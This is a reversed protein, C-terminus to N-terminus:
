HPLLTPASSPATLSSKIAHHQPTSPSSTPAIHLALRTNSPCVVAPCGFCLLHFLVLSRSTRSPSHSRSHLLFEPKPPTGTRM